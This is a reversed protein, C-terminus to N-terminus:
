AYSFMFIRLVRLFRVGVAEEIVLGGKEEDELNIDNMAQILSSTLTMM